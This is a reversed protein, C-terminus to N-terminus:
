NGKLYLWNGSGNHAMIPSLIYKDDILGFWCLLPKTGWGLRIPHRLETDVDQFTLFENPLRLSPTEVVLRQGLHIVTNPHLEKTSFTYDM